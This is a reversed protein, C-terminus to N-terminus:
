LMSYVVQIHCAHMLMTVEVAHVHMYCADTRGIQFGDRAHMSLLHFGLEEILRLLLVEFGGM